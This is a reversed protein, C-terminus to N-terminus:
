AFKQDEWSTAEMKSERKKLIKMAYLKEKNQRFRSLLRAKTLEARYRCCIVLAEPKRQM